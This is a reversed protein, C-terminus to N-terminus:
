LTVAFGVANVTPIPFGVLTANVTAALAAGPVYVAGTFPVAAPTGPVRVTFTEMMTGGGGSKVSVAFGDVRVSEGPPVPFIVNVTFARLPHFVGVVSEIGAIGFTVADGVVPGNGPVPPEISTVKVAAAPAGLPVSGKVAVADVGGTFMTVVRDAAALMTIWGGGSKESVTAGSESFTRCPSVPVTDTM